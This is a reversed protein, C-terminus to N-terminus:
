GTASAPPNPVPWLAQNKNRKGRNALVPCIIREQKRPAPTPIILPSTERLDMFFLRNVSLVENKLTMLGGYGVSGYDVLFLHHFYVHFAEAVHQKERQFIVDLM